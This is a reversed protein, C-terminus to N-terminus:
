AARPSRPSARSACCLPCMTFMLPFLAGITSRGETPLFASRARHSRPFSGLLPRERRVGVAVVGEGRDVLLVIRLEDAGSTRLVDLVTTLAPAPLRQDASFRKALETRHGVGGSIKGDFAREFLAGM